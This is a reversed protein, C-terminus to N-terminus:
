DYFCISVSGTVSGSDEDLHIAVKLTGRSLGPNSWNNLTLFISSM